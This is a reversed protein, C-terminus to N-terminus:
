HKLNCAKRYNRIIVWMERYQENDRDVRFWSASDDKAQEIVHQRARRLIETLESRSM